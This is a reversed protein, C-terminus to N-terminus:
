IIFLGVAALVIMIGAWKTLVKYYDLFQTGFYLRGIHTCKHAPSLLYASYEIAIFWTLYELGYLSGLLAVIGAFKGSSGMAFSAFFAFLSVMVFGSVTTIDAGYSEIFELMEGNYSKTINALVIVVALTAMLYWNIYSNLKKIDFTESMFIYYVATIPFIYEAPFGVVLFGIALFLPIAGLYFRVWDIFGEQINIIIDEEKLVFFIYYGIYLISVALLPLTYYLMEMYSLGLVAMPIIITKELPSFLYYMHTSLYDVIGFKSRSKCTEETDGKPAVTDLIGASVAVRGPIPLCGGFFSVSAVILRKSKIYKSIIQIFDDFYNNDKIMGVCLMVAAMFFLYKQDTYLLELLM